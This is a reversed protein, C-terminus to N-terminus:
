KQGGGMLTKALDVYPGSDSKSKGDIARMAQFAQAPAMGELKEKIARVMVPRDSTFMNVGISRAFDDLEHLTPLVRRRTLREVFYSIAKQAGQRTSLGPYNKSPRGKATKNRSTPGVNIQKLANTISNLEADNMVALANSAEEIESDAYRLRLLYLELFLQRAKTIM